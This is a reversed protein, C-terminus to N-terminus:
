VVQEQQKKWVISAYSGGVIICAGVVTWLSPIEAYFVMGLFIAFVVQLYSFSTARSATELQMGKTLAVQGVQTTLGVGLLYLWAIGEPVVFNNWLFPMTGPLSVLPFYMVIVLPDEKESLKKVLIYASASGLAGLIAAAIALTEFRGSHEYFVFDPRIIVLLGVMSLTICIITGLTPRENLFFVALIATFMPHLYQLATAEALPLHTLAYFVFTLAIFGLLGRLFLWGKQNGFVPIGKRKVLFYSITLSILARAAVIELAPIGNLSAAKVFASMVSFAFASLIM